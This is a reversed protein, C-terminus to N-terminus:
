GRVSGRATARRGRGRGASRAGGAAHGQGLGVSAGHGLNRAPEARPRYGDGDQLASRSLGVHRRRRDVRDETRGRGSARVGARGLGHVSKAASMEQGGGLLDDVRAIASRVSAVIQPETAGRPPGSDAQPRSPERRVQRAVRLAASLLATEEDSLNEAPISELVSLGKDFEDTVILVAAECLRSRLNSASNEGAVAAANSAAWLVLDVSSGKLGEWAVSLYVDQRKADALSSWRPKSGRGARRNTPWAAPRWTSPSSAASIGWTCPIPSGACTSSRRARSAIPM